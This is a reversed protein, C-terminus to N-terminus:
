LLICTLVIKDKNDGDSLAGKNVRGLDIRLTGLVLAVVLSFLLGSEIKIIANSETM